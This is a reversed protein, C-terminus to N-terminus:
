AGINMCILRYVCGVALGLLAVLILVYLVQVAFLLLYIFGVVILLALIFALVKKMDIGEWFGGLLSRRLLVCNGTGITAFTAHSLM